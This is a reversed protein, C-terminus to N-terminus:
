RRWEELEAESLRHIMANLLALRQNCDPCFWDREANSREWTQVLDRDSGIKLREKVDGQDGMVDELLCLNCLTISLGDDRITFNLTERAKVGWGGCVYCPQVTRLELSCFCIPCQPAFKM